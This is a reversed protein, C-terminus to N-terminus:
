KGLKASTESKSTMLIDNQKNTSLVMLVTLVM